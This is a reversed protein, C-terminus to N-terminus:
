SGSAVGRYTAGPSFVTIPRAHAPGPGAPAEVVTLEQDAAVGTFTQTVGSPWCVVVSDAVPCAGLGFLLRQDNQAFRHKGGTQDLRQLLGGASVYVRAGLGDRTSNVGELRVRLWHGGDTTNRLVQNPAAPFVAVPTEFLTCNLLLDPRGDNDYDGVSVKRGLGFHPRQIGAAAPAGAARTFTGDGNNLYVIDPQDTVLHECSLYLDRRGDNNFDAAAVND